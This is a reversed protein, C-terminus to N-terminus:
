TNRGTAAPACRRLRRAGVQGGAGQAFPRADLLLDDRQIVYAAAVGFAALDDGLSAFSNDGLDSHLLAVGLGSGYGPRDKRATPLGALWPGCLPLRRLCAKRNERFACFILAVFAVLSGSMYATTFDTPVNPSHPAATPVESPVPSPARTPHRSPAIGTYNRVAFQPSNGATKQKFPM